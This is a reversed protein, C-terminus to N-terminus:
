PRIWKLLGCCGSEVLDYTEKFQGTHFPDPVDSVKTGDIFESLFHVSIKRKGALKKISDLNKKDMVIILDFKEFDEETVQRGLIGKWTIGHGELVKRTGPHPPKGTHWERIGASDVQIKSGLGKKRVLDRFIAEAMPSRCINGLCVFLVSIM